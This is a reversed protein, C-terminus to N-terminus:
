EILLNILFYKVFFFVCFLSVCSCCGRNVFSIELHAYYLTSLVYKLSFMKKWRVYSFDDTM